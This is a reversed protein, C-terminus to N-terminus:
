ARAIMIIKKVVLVLLVGLLCGVVTGGIFWPKGLGFLSYVKDDMAWSKAVKPLALCVLLNGDEGAERMISDKISDGLCSVGAYAGIFAGIMGGWKEEALSKQKAGCKPCSLPEVTFEEGCARCKEKVKKFFEVVKM